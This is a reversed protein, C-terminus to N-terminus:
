PQLNKGTLIGALASLRILRLAFAYALSAIVMIGFAAGWPEILSRTVLNIAVLGPIFFAMTLLFRPSVRFRFIVLVLIVQAIASAFQTIVSAYASGVAQHRPILILNLILSLLMSGGAIVNLQKLNGNATLLTGFVYNMSIAIFGFMMVRFVDASQEAHAVMLMGMLQDSYFHCGLSIILSITMLLTFSLKVMQIVPERTKLMRAFIPLLLVAFLYGIMNVADLIRFSSAYITAQEKGEPSPLLREIMVPDIRNYFTMLLVLLAFPFSKRFILVIFPWNWTLHRFAAKRIVIMLAILATLGYSATQAYIFWEIRFPSAAVHGWLLVGCIIILLIRDLVSLFSDTRFLLLGSVNSRLYLIFSILFQNIGLFFLFRLKIGQYGIILAAGFTIFFYVLFLLLKVTLISSFHKHLLQSNQAINRNNFNTIGCDLLINFLFSFNFIVFYLGYDTGVQNQITLDIGFIYFPKILLNLSLLLILNALFKKQM